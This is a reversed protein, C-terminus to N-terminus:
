KIMKLDAKCSKLTNQALDFAEASSSVTKRISDVLFAEGYQDRDEFMEKLTRLGCCASMLESIHENLNKDPM